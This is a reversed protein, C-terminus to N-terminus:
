GKLKKGSVYPNGKVVFRYPLLADEGAYDVGIRPTAIVLSAAYSFGDDVIFMEDGRLDVGTHHTRIGLAKSVNGPGRTLDFGHVAKFSRLLMQEIGAVPELARILVAHPTDKVNTVVNFLQHIGYCLYVYAVGGNEYMIETRNTRRGGSAHSAKDVVGNYSETEVIRGATLKGDFRTALIKGILERAITVVDTREYFAAPLKEWTAPLDQTIVM